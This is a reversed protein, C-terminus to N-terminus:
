RQRTSEAEISLLREACGGSAGKGYWSAQRLRAVWAPAYWQVNVVARADTEAMPSAGTALSHEERSAEDTAPSIPSPVELWRQNRTGRRKAMRVYPRSLM